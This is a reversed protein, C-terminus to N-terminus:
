SESAAETSVPEDECLRLEPEAMEKDVASITFDQSIMAVPQPAKITTPAALIESVADAEVAEEPAIVNPHVCM